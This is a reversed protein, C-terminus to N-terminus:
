TEQTADVVLTALQLTGNKVHSLSQKQFITVLLDVLMALVGGLM